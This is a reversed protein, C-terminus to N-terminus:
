KYEVGMMAACEPGYGTHVSEPVTLRRGCRACRGSHWIEIGPMEIHARLHALVNEFLQVSEANRGVKAKDAGHKYLFSNNQLTLHAFYAFNNENDRGNMLKVFRKYPRDVNETIKFTFRRQESLVSSRKDVITFVRKMNKSNGKALMYSLANEQALQGPIFKSNQM